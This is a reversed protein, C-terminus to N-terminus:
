SCGFLGSGAPKVIYRSILLLVITAVPLLIDLYFVPGANGSAFNGTTMM